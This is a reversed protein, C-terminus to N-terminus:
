VRRATKETEAPGTQEDNRRVIKLHKPQPPGSGELMDCRIIRDAIRKVDAAAIMVRRGFRRTVLVQNAIMTDVSRLSISLAFAVDERSYLLKEVHHVPQPTQAANAM